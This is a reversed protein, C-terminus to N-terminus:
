TTAVLADHEQGSTLRARQLHRLVSRNARDPGQCRQDFLWLHLLSAFRTQRYTRTTRKALRDRDLHLQIPQDGQLALSRWSGEALPLTLNPM